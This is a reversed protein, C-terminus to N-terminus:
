RNQKDSALEYLSKLALNRRRKKYMTNPEMESNEFDIAEMLDPVLSRLKSGSVTPSAVSQILDVEGGCAGLCAGPNMRRLLESFIGKSDEHEVQFIGKSCGNRDFSSSEKVENITSSVVM